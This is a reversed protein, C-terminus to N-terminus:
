LLRCFLRKPRAPYTELEQGRGSYADQGVTLM